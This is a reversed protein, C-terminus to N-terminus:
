LLLHNIHAGAATRYKLCSGPPFVIFISELSKDYLRSVEIGAVSKSKDTIATVERNSSNIDNVYKRLFM